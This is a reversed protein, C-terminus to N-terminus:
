GESSRQSYSTQRYLLAVPTTSMNHAMAMKSSSSYSRQLHINIPGSVCLGEIGRNIAITFGEIWDGPDLVFSRIVDEKSPLGFTRRPRGQMTISLATLLGDDNWYSQLYTYKTDLDLWDSLFFATFKHSKADIAVEAILPTYHSVSHWKIRELIGGSHVSVPHMQVAYMVALQHCVMWIRRRNVLGPIADSSQFTSRRDMDWYVQQWNTEACPLAQDLPLDWLWPMDSKIRRKWFFGSALVRAAAPTVAQLAKFSSGPLNEVIGAMTELPLTKFIDFMRGKPSGRNTGRKRGPREKKRRQQRRHPISRKSIAPSAYRPLQSYYEHLQPIDIPDAVLAEQGPESIWWQEQSLEQAEYYNLRLTKAFGERLTEEVCNYLKDVDVDRMSSQIWDYTNDAEYALVKPLICHLCLTHIPVADQYADFFFVGGSGDNNPVNSDDGMEALITGLEDLEASGTTYCRHM